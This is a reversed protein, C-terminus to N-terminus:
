LQIVKAGDIRLAVEDATEKSTFTGITFVSVGQSDVTRAIEKDPAHQELIEKVGATLEVIEIRYLQESGDSASKSSQSDQVEAGLLVGDKWHALKAKSFGSRKVRALDKQADAETKYTGAYYVVGGSGDSDEVLSVPYIRRFVGYNTQKRVYHGLEIKYMDGHSLIDIEGVPNKSNHVIKGAITIPTFDVYNWDPVVVLPLDYAELNVNRGQAEIKDKLNMLNMESTLAIEYDRALKEKSLVTSSYPNIFKEAAAYEESRVNRSRQGLADLMDMSVNLRDLMITYIEIKKDFIKESLERVQNDKAVLEEQLGQAVTQLSDAHAKSNAFSLSDLTATLDAYVGRQVDVLSSVQSKISSYSDILKRNAESVNEVFMDTQTLSEQESSQQASEMSMLVLQQELSNKKSTLVGLEDRLDFLEGELLLIEKGIKNALKRDTSMLYRNRDILAQLSDQQSTLREEQATIKEYDIKISDSQQAFATAACFFASVFLIAKM